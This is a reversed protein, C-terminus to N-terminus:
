SFFRDVDGSPWSDNSQIESRHEAHFPDSDRQSVGGKRGGVGEGRLMGATGGRSTEDVGM